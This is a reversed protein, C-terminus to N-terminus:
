CQSKEVMVCAAPSQMWGDPPDRVIFEALRAAPRAAAMGEWTQYVELHLFAWGPRREGEECQLLSIEQFRQM